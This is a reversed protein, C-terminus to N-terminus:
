RPIFRRRLGYNLFTLAILTVAAVAWRLGEPWVGPDPIWFLLAPVVIAFEVVQLGFWVLPNELLHGPPAQDDRRWLMMPIAIFAGIVLGIAMGVLGTSLTYYTTSSLYQGFLRYCTANAPLGVGDVACYASLAPPSSVM